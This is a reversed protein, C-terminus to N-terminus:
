AMTPKIPYFKISLTTNKILLSSPLDKFLEKMEEQTKFYFEDNPFGYRYGRGRGIPTEKLEGDKVCLLVDHSAADEKRMYYVNNSAFYKVGYKKAFGLLVENVHTEEELGHRMLEVYFDDGFQEYWWKFADEAQSEGVNLILKPIEASLGGTTVILGEKYQQILEKDVRPCGAYM